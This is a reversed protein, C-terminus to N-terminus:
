YSTIGNVLWRGDQRVMDLMVRNLAVQPQGGNATSRTTQDVFVLVHAHDPDAESVGSGLVRATVKAKLGPANHKVLSFTNEYKKTYAPTLYSAAAKEDRGLSRYDYSLIAQVAREAVSPATQQAQEVARDRWAPVAFYAAAAVVVATVVALVALVLNSPGKGAPAAPVAAKVEAPKEQIAVEAAVPEAAAPEAVPVEHVTPEVAPRAAARPGPQEPRRSTREGAIRRRGSKVTGSKVTSSKTTSPKM